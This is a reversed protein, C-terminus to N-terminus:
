GLSEEVREVWERVLANLLPEQELQLNHGARDLVVFTGRPYNNLIPWADQSGVVSDQKGTVILTPPEFPSPLADVDFSFSYGNSAFTSIFVQDALECGPAIDSQTREWTQQTQVVAISEFVEKKEQAITSLFSDDRILPTHPPVVRKAHEAVIVPCLLFLGDISSSRSRVLGRALYGGYSYGVLVFRQDPLINDIFESIIDLMQDSTAICPNAKSMGMGPLDLYIRKWGDLENFAPEMFATMSRHDLGFGHLFLIPRGEGFVKYHIDVDRVRCKM